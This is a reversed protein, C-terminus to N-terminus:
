RQLRLHVTQIERRGIRFVYGGKGGGALRKVPKEDFDCLFAGTTPAAARIRCRGAKDALSYVRVIWGSGDESRKWASLHVDEGEITIISGEVVPLGTHRKDRYRLRDWPTVPLLTVPANITRRRKLCERRVDDYGGTAWEFTREITRLCQGEPAGWIEFPIGRSVIDVARLVSFSLAVGGRADRRSEALTPCETVVGLAAGGKGRVKAGVMAVSDIRAVKEGVPYWDWDFKSDYEFREAEIGTPFTMYVEHDKARNEVNVRVRGGGRYHPIELEVRVPCTVLRKSRKKRGVALAAPVRMVFRAEVRTSIEDHRVIRARGRLGKNTISKGPKEFRIYNYEDGVDEVDELLGLGKFEKGLRKDCVDFTGDGRLMVREFDNEVVVKDRVARATAAGWKVRAERRRDTRLEFSTFGCGAVEPAISLTVEMGAAGEKAFANGDFPHREIRRAADVACPVARGKSDVVTIGRASKMGEVFVKATLREREAFPHPNFAVLVPTSSKGRRGAIRSATVLMADNLLYESIERARKFRNDMDEHTADVSCGCIDDHPSNKLLLKWLYEMEGAPYYRFAAWNQGPNLTYGSHGLERFARHGRGFVDACALLPETLAETRGAINAYAQKQYVRSTMTGHLGLRFQGEIRPLRRKEARVADMMREYTSHVLRIRDQRRNLERILAPAHPQAEQHDVGNGLWIQNTTMKGALFASLAKMVHKEALEVSWEDADTPRNPYRTPDFSDDGWFYLSAYGLGPLFYMHVWSKGDPAYWKQVWGRAKEEPSLGRVFIASRIGFGSLIQPLQAAHGFVDSLAGEMQVRGLAKAQRIGIAINRILSEGTVLYQDPLCYFPGVALRGEKVLRVIRERDQPRVELYDEIPVMQGDFCFKYGRDREMVDLLKRVLFVLRVRFIEFPYYWARDWHTHSVVHGVLRARGKGVLAGKDAADM